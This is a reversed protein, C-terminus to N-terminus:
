WVLYLQFLVVAFYLQYYGYVLDHWALSWAQSSSGHVTLLTDVFYILTWVLYPVGLQIYRRKWFDKTSRPRTIQAYTLIFASLFFFATRSFHLLMVFAWPVVLGGAVTWLLSHQLVVACCAIVRYSDFQGLYGGKPPAATPTPSGSANRVPQETSSERLSLLDPM